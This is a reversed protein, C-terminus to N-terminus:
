GVYQGAYQRTHMFIREGERVMAGFADDPIASEPPPSFVPNVAEDGGHGAVAAAVPVSAKAGSAPADRSAARGSHAALALGTGAVAMCLLRYPTNM